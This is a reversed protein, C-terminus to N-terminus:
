KKKGRDEGACDSRMRAKPFNYNKARGAWTKLSKNEKSAFLGLLARNRELRGEVLVADSFFFKDLRRDQGM